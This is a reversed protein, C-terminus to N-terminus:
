LYDEENITELNKNRCIILNDYQKKPCNYCYELCIKIKILKCYFVNM